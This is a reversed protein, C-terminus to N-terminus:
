WETSSFIIPGHYDYLEMSQAFTLWVALQGSFLGVKVPGVQNVIEELEKQGRYIWWHNEQYSGVEPAETESSTVAEGVLASAASTVSDACPIVMTGTLPESAERADSPEAALTARSPVPAAVEPAESLVVALM